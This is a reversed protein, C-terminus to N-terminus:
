WRFWCWERLYVCLVCVVFGVRRVKAMEVDWPGATERFTRVANEARVELAICLGFSLQTVHDAYDPIVGKYVQV